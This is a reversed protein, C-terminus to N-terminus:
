NFLVTFATYKGTLVKLSRESLKWPELFLNSKKTLWPPYRHPSFEYGRKYKFYVKLDIDQDLPQPRMFFIDEVQPPNHLKVIWHNEHEELFLKDSKLSLIEENFKGLEVGNRDILRIRKDLKLSNPRGCKVQEELTDICENVGLSRGFDSWNRKTQSRFGGMPIHFWPFFDPIAIKESYCVKYQLTKDITQKIMTALPSNAKELTYTVYSDSSDQSM